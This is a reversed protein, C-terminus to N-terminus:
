LTTVDREKLRIAAITWLTIAAGALISADRWQFAGTQFSKIPKYYELVSLFRLHRTFELSQDIAYLFNVLLSFITVLVVFLVARLRRDTWVGALLGLTGIVSYVLALNGIALLMEAYDPRYAEKVFQSGFYNGAYVAGFVGLANVSWAVTESVLLQLRTVPLALLVDVTGREVESALVRTTIIIAHAALLAIVVPHSLAISYAVEAVGGLSDVGLMANRFARVPPPIM